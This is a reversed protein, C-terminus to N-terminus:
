GQLVKLSALLFVNVKGLVPLSRKLPLVINRMKKNFSGSRVKMHRRNWSYLVSSM